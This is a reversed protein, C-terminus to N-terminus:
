WNVLSRWVGFVGIRCHEICGVEEMGDAWGKDRSYKRRVGRPRLWIGACGSRLGCWACDVGVRRVNM